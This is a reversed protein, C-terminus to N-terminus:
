DLGVILGSDADLVAFMSQPRGGITTFDGAVFVKGDSVVISRVWGDADPNWATLQGTTKDIAALRGRPAGGITTFFGGIYLRRGDDFFTSVADNTPLNWTTPVGTAIDVAALNNRPQGGIERFRGGVYVVSGSITLASVVDGDIGRVAPNWQSAVGSNLDFAALNERITDQGVLGVRDFSGGAYVATGGASLTM